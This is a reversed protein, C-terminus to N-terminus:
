KLVTRSCSTVLQATQCCFQMHPQFEPAPLQCQDDKTMEVTSTWIRVVKGVRQRVVQRARVRCSGVRWGRSRGQQPGTWMTASNAGFLFVSSDWWPRVVLLAVGDRCGLDLGCLTEWIAVGAPNWSVRHRACRSCCLCLCWVRRHGCACSISIVPVLVLCACCYSLVSDLAPCIRCLDRGHCPCLFVYTRCVGLLGLGRGCTGCVSWIVCGSGNVVAGLFRRLPGLM